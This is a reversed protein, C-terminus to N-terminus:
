AEDEKATKKETARKYAGLGLTGAAGMVAGKIGAVAKQRVLERHTILHWGMQTMDGLKDMHEITAKWVEYAENTVKLVRKSNKIM